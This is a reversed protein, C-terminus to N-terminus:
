QDLNKECFVIRGINVQDPVSQGLVVHLTGELNRM